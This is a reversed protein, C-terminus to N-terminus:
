GGGLYYDIYTKKIQSFSRRPVPIKEGNDLIIDTGSFTMIYQMNVIFSSGAKVFCGKGDLQEFLTANSIRVKLKEGNSLVIQQYHYQTQSYIIDSLKIKLSGQETNISIVAENKLMNQFIINLANELAEYTVPKVLYQIANVEFAELAYEKSSTFFVISISSNKKRLLRAFDMGSLGDMYIDLFVANYECKQTLASLIDSINSFCDTEFEINKKEGYAKILNEIKEAEKPMDDCILIRM